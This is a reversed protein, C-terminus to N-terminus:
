IGHRLDALPQLPGVEVGLQERLRAAAAAGGARREVRCAPLEWWDRLLTGSTRRVLLLRGGRSALVAELDIRVPAARVRPRPLQRERGSQLAVCAASLPCIGCRPIPKTCITAGLEMLSQNAAGPDRGAAWETAWAWLQRRAAGSDVDTDAGFLRALVRTVNGDLVPAPQGFAVSAIAGATYRGIGPLARLAELDAPVRGAHEHVVRRAAAHLSRARTYYGLGAWARLVDELRAAALHAASPYQALFREYYPVVVDVRTQQLMIEAVWIAYPDCSRRWPLDRRQRRYWGLLARRARQLTRDNV